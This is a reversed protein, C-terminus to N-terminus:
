IFEYHQNALHKLLGSDFRARDDLLIESPTTKSLTKGSGISHEHIEVNWRRQRTLLAQSVATESLELAM